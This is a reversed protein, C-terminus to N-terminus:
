RQQRNNALERLAACRRLLITKGDAIESREIATLAEHLPIEIIEIDKDKSRHQRRRRRMRRRDRAKCGALRM